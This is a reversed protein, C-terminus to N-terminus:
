ANPVGEMIFKAPSPHVAAEAQSPKMVNAALSTRIDLLGPRNSVPSRGRTAERIGRPQGIERGAMAYLRKARAMYDTPNSKLEAEAEAIWRELDEENGNMFRTPDRRFGPFFEEENPDNQRYATDLKSMVTLDTLDERELQAIDAETYRGVNNGVRESTPSLAARGRTQIEEM